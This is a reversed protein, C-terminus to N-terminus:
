EQLGTESQRIMKIMSNYTREYIKKESYRLNVHKGSKFVLVLVWRSPCREEQNYYKFIGDISEVDFFETDTKWFTKM